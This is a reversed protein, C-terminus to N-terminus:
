GCPISHEIGSCRSERGPPPRTVDARVVKAAGTEEKVLREVEWYYSARVEDDDYFDYVRTPSQALLFGHRDLSLEGAIPRADYIRVRFDGYNGVRRPLGSGPPPNYTVPKVSTDALYQVAAEVYARPSHARTPALTAEAIM